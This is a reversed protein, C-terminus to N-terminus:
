LHATSCCKTCLQSGISVGRGSPSVDGFACFAPLTFARESINPQALFREPRFTQADEWYTDSNQFSFIAAQM